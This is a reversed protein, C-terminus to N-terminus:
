DVPRHRLYTPYDIQTLNRILHYFTSRLLCTTVLGPMEGDDVPRPTGNAVSWM